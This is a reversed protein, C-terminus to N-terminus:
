ISVRNRGDRKSQYLKEDAKRLISEADDGSEVFSCGISVTVSLFQGEHTLQSAEILMRTREAILAMEDKTTNTSIIVFEEGGWRVPTDYARCNQSLTQAVMQLVQDGVAHGYTDNFRKFLDIDIMLLGFPEDQRDYSALNAAMAYDFYRRNALGTLKDVLAVHEMECLRDLMRIRDTDDSFVEVSGIIENDEGRVAASRVRVPVRHGLSHHMFVRAERGEGDQMTAELPCGEQCLCNGDGDVHMLLGDSCSTGMVQSKTFGSLEEAAHNWYLIRRNKDVFYVGDTLRELIADQLQGDQLMTGMLEASAM